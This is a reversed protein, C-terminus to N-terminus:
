FRFYLFPTDARLSLTSVAYFMLVALMAVRIASWVPRAPATVWHAMSVHKSAFLVWGWALIFITLNRGNAALDLNLPWPRNTPVVLIKLMALAQSVSTARFFVWGVMVLGLTVARRLPASAPTDDRGFGTVREAVLWFGHYLGWLLFTWDAGHWFGCLIFVAVLNGYTRLRGVRNGGMPIYVYDRFFRTLSMHWRRWFDTMSTATYPRDFNEPLRFGFILGLGLAMDTYGSFDFYIQLTYAAVGLWASPTGIEGPEAGFVADAMEGCADAVIVKKVLGVSFRLVGRAVQERSERRGRLQESIEHFRVIPGAILQPFFFLYLAFDTFDTLAPKTGRYVDVVYTIKHFTFFSIGIPLAVEFWPMSAYGLHSLVANWEGVFFNAYKFYGLLLLNLGVSATVWTRAGVGRKAILFGLRFDVFASALLLFLFPGAGWLYFLGSATLLVANRTARERSPVLFYCGAVAPLFVALFLLSSFVM